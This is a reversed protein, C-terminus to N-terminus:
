HLIANRGLHGYSSGSPLAAPSLRYKERYQIESLRQTSNDDILKWM